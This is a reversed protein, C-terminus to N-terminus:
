EIHLGLNMSSFGVTIEDKMYPSYNTYNNSTQNVLISISYRILEIIFLLQHGVVLLQFIHNFILKTQCGDMIQPSM